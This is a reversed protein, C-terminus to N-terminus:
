AVKPLKNIEYDIAFVGYINKSEQFIQLEIACDYWKLQAHHKQNGVAIAITCFYIGPMLYPLKLKFEVTSEGEKDIDIQVFNDFGNCGFLYRGKNDCLSIGLTINKEYGQSTVLDKVFDIKWSFRCKVKLQRGGVLINPKDLGVISASILEAGGIGWQDGKMDSVSLNLCYDSTDESGPADSNPVHAEYSPPESGGQHVIAETESSGDFLDQSSVEPTQEPFLIEYYKITAVKADGWYIVDGGNLLLGRNCISRVLETAHSVFLITTGNAKLEELRKFCKLQFRADGVALAEDVILIQMDVAAQVAFALRLMMGSSYTKVPQDLHPGIDAFSAIWDFKEDIEKRTLGLLCGNLYVNERGTFDPNFGSGLELLATVKGHVDVHGVTPSMTGAIIQLLTSKGSGNQGIIGVCEGRGVEFSVDKLAWFETHFKQNKLGPLFGLKPKILDKLRDAPRDYMYFCKGVNHVSLVTNSSSM